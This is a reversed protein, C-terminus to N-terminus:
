FDAFQFNATRVGEHNFPIWLDFLLKTFSEDKLWTENFKLPRPPQTPGNSLSLFIPLHDSLGTFGVWKRLFHTRELVQEVVLFRDLGKEM